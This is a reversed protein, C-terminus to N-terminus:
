AHYEGKLLDILYAAKENNLPKNIFAIVDMAEIEERTSKQIDASMVIVKAKYESDKILRLLEQGNMKPMLLDTLVYDPKEEQYIQFGEEGNNALFVLVDPLYDKIVKLLLKKVLQSDDVILIKM